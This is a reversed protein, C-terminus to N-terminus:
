LMHTSQLFDLLYESIPRNGTQLRLAQAILPLVQEPDRTASLPVFCVGEAFTERLRSGVAFALKTKGVGGTGTLTLMRVEPRALLSCAVAMAQDRGILPTSLRSQESSATELFGRVTNQM